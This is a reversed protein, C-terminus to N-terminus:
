QKFKGLEVVCERDDKWRKFGQDISSVWLMGHRQVIEFECYFKHNLDEYTTEYGYELWACMFQHHTSNEVRLHHLTVNYLDRFSESAIVDGTNIRARYMFERTVSLPFRPKTM